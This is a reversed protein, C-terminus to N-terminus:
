LQITGQIMSDPSEKRASGTLLFWRAKKSRSSFRQNPSSTKFKYRMVSARRLVLAVQCPKRMSSLGALDTLVQPLAGRKAMQRGGPDNMGYKSELKQLTEDLREVNAKGDFPENAARRARYAALSVTWILLIAEYIADVEQDSLYTNDHM